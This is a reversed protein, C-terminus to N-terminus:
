TTQAKAKGTVPKALAELQVYRVAPAFAYLAQLISGVIWGLFPVAAVLGLLFNVGIVGWVAGSRRKSQAASQRLAEFVGIDKDVLHFNSLYYRRLMFFFPVVLLLFSVLYIICVCIGLGLMRWAYHKGADFAEKYGISQGRASKVQIVTGAGGTIMLLGFTILGFIVAIGFYVPRGSGHGFAGIVGPILTLLAAIVPTVLMELLTFFNRVLADISPKFLKFASPLAQDTHPTDDATTTSPEDM